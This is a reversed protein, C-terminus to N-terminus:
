FLHPGDTPFSLWLLCQFVVHGPTLDLFADPLGPFAQKLKSTVKQM